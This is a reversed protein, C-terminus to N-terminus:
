IPVMQQILVTMTQGSQGVNVPEPVHSDLRRARQCTNSAPAESELM